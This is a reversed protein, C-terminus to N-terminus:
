RNELEQSLKAARKSTPNLALAKTLSDKAKSWQRTGILFEALNEHLYAITADIESSNVFDKEAAEMNGLKWQAFGRAALAIANTPLIELATNAEAVAEEHKGLRALARARRALNWTNSPDIAIALNLHGLAEGPQDLDILVSGIDSQLYPDNPWSTQLSLLKQLAAANDEMEFDLMAEWYLDYEPAFQFEQYSALSKRAAVFDYQYMAMRMAQLHVEPNEPDNILAENILPTALAYKSVYIYTKALGLIETNTRNIKMIDLYADRAAEPRDMTLLLDARDQELGSNPQHVIGVDYAALAEVNRHLNKLSTARTGHLRGNLPEIAIALDINRLAAPYNGADQEVWNLWDYGFSQKPKQKVYANLHRRAEDHNKQTVLITTIGSLADLNIPDLTLAKRYAELANESQGMGNFLSGRAVHLWAPQEGMTLLQDSLAIAKDQNGVRWHANFLSRLTSQKVVPLRALPLQTASECDQILNEATEFFCTGLHRVSYAAGGLISWGALLPLIIKALFVLTRRRGVREDIADENTAKDM